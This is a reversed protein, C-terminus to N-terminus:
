RIYDEETVFCCCCFAIASSLCALYNPEPIPKPPPQQFYYLVQPSNNYFPTFQISSVQPPYSIEPELPPASPQPYGNM